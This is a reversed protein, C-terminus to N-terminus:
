GEINLCGLDHINLPTEFTPTSSAIDFVLITSPTNFSPNFLPHQICIRSIQELFNKRSQIFKNRAKGKQSSLSFYDFCSNKYLSLTSLFLFLLSLYTWYISFINSCLCNFKNKQSIRWVLHVIKLPNVGTYLFIVCTFYLLKITLAFCM